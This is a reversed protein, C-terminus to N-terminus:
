RNEQQVAPKDSSSLLFMSKSPRMREIAERDAWRSAYRIDRTSDMDHDRWTADPPSPVHELRRLLPICLKFEALTTLFDM